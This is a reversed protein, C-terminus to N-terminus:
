HEEKVKKRFHNCQDKNEISNKERVKGFSTHIGILSTLSNGVHKLNEM